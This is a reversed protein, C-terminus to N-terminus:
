VQVAPVDLCFPMLRKFFDRCKSFKKLENATSNLPIKIIGQVCRSPLIVSIPCGTNKLIFVRTLNLCM